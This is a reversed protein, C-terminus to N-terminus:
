SPFIIKKLHPSILEIPNYRQLLLSFGGVFMRDNGFQAKPVINFQFFLDSKALLTAFCDGTRDCVFGM